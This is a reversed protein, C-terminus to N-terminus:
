RKLFINEHRDYNHYDINHKICWDISKKINKKKMTELRENKDRRKIVDLTSLIFQIQQQGFITNIDELKSLFHNSIAVNLLGTIYDTSNCALLIEEFVPIMFQTSRYKFEKCVLYKESNAYRSTNPKMIYVENYFCSLIYIVDVMAKSYCDFVKLILSGNLAQMTLAYVMQAIILKTSMIEQKNFDLSFDFGGDGSIINVRNVFKKACYIYNEVDFLNGNKNPGSHLTVNSHKKFFEEGKKWGPVGESEDLLTMGNYQDEKQKRMVLLAEIFGGPGEALHFSTLPDNSFSSLLNHTKCIEIMKFFSRSLPKYKSISSKQKPVVTHIYEYPNVYKKVNDWEYQHDDIKAKISSLHSSLSYSIQKKDDPENSVTISFNNPKLLTHNLNLKYITM